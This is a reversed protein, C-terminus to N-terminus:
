EFAAEIIEAESVEEDDTGAYYAPADKYPIWDGEEPGHLCNPAMAGCAVCLLDWCTCDGTFLGVVSNCGKCKWMDDKADIYIDIEGLGLERRLNMRHEKSRLDAETLQDDLVADQAHRAWFAQVDAETQKPVVTGNYLQNESPTVDESKKVEKTEIKELKKRTYSTQSGDDYHTIVRESDNDIEEIEQRVRTRYNAPSGWKHKKAKSPEHATNSWWMHHRKTGMDENLIYVNKELKPNTTLFMLKSGGIYDEVMDVLVPDDLWTEPLRPLVLSAFERTDSKEAQRGIPGTVHTLVGNHAMVTDKAVKFPHTNDLGIKGSTAIRMHVLFDKDRNASRHTEFKSWFKDFTMAKDMVIEQDENIYAFGGGDPNRGWMEQATKKSLYSGAPQHVIVCM